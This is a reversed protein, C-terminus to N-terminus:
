RRSRIEKSLRDLREREATSLSALGSAAVKDLLRDVEEMKRNRARTEDYRQFRESGVPRNTEGVSELRRELLHFPDFVTLALILLSLVIVAAYLAPSATMMSPYLATAVLLGIIAGGVHADHGLNDMGQRMRIFSFILFGIAYAYAPIGIPILFLYINGGPLLFISAFLVGCVGGSAGLARYDHHRHIFLSLLSGGLISSFYVLLLTKIGYNAEINRGFALLTIANFALHLWDGHIFGSTLLREYQKGALIERPVFMLRDLLARDRFAMVSVIMTMALVVLTAPADIGFNV